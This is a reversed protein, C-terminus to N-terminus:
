QGGASQSGKKPDTILGIDEVGAQRLQDMASMVTGYSKKRPGNKMRNLTFQRHCPYTRPLM